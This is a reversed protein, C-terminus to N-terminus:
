DHDVVSTYVRGVQQKSLSRPTQGDCEFNEEYINNYFVEHDGLMYSGPNEIVFVMKTHGSVILQTFPEYNDPHEYDRVPPKGRVGTPVSNDSVMRFDAIKRYGQVSCVSNELDDVTLGSGSATFSCNSIESANNSTVSLEIVTPKLHRLGGRMGETTVALEMLGSSDAGILAGKSRLEIDTIKVLNSTSNRDYVTLGAQDKLDNISTSNLIPLGQFNANCTAQSSLLHRVQNSLELNSMRDELYSVMEQQHIISKSIAGIVVVGIGAAMLVSVLSFGKNNNMFHPFLSKTIM